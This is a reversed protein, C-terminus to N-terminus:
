LNHNLNPYSHGGGGGGRYPKAAITHLQQPKAAIGTCNRHLEPAIRTCNQHLEPAIQVQSRPCRAAVQSSVLNAISITIPRASLPLAVPRWWHRILLSLVRTPLVGPPVQRLPGTPAVQCDGTERVKLM